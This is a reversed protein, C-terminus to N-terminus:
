KEEVLELFSFQGGGEGRAEKMKQRIKSLKVRSVRGRENKMSRPVKEEGWQRDSM